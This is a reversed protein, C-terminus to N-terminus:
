RAYNEYAILTRLRLLRGTAPSGPVFKDPERVTVTLGDVGVIVVTEGKPIESRERDRSEQLVARWREGYISIQGPSGSGVATRVVGTEGVMNEARVAYEPQESRSAGLGYRTYLVILM